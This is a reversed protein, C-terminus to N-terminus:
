LGYINEVAKKLDSFYAQQHKKLYGKVFPKMYFRKATVAETFDLLTKEGEKTFRGAWRGCMNENDMDFAYYSYPEFATIHFFTSFGDKTHEIFKKGPETIEISSLDSRWHYNELSTVLGWVKKIDCMLEAKYNSVAM